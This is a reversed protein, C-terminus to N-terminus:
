IFSNSMYFINLYIVHKVSINSIPSKQNQKLFFLHRISNNNICLFVEWWKVTPMNIYKPENLSTILFIHKCIM